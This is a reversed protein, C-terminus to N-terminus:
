IGFLPKVIVEVPSTAQHGTGYNDTELVEVVLLPKCHIDKGHTSSSKGTNKLRERNQGLIVM